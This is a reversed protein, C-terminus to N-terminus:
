KDVTYNIKHTASNKVENRRKDYRNVMAPNKWGFAYQLEVFNSGQDIANSAATARLSHPSVERIGAKRCYKLVMKRISEPHMPLSPNRYQHFLAVTGLARAYTKNHLENISSIHREVVSQIASPIAIRRVHKGKGSVTLVYQGREVSVDGIRVNVLESRRLGLYLLMAIVCEDKLSDKPISLLKGAEEDSLASTNANEVGPILKVAKAPNFAIQGTEHLWTFLSRVTSLTRNVSAPAYRECLWARFKLVDDISTDVVSCPLSARFMELDRRYETKTRESLQSQVFTDMPSHIVLKNSM